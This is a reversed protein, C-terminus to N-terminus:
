QAGRQASSLLPVESEIVGALAQASRLRPRERQQTLTRQLFGDRGRGINSHGACDGANPRRELAIESRTSDLPIGLDLRVVRLRHYVRLACAAAVARRM